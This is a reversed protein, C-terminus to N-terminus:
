AGIGVFTMGLEREQYGPLPQPKLTYPGEIGSYFDRHFESRRQELCAKMNEIVAAADYRNFDKSGIGYVGHLLVPM